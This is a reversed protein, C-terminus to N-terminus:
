SLIEKYYNELKEAIAQPGFKQFTIQAYKSRSFNLSRVWSVSESLEFESEFNIKRLIEESIKFEELSLLRANAIVPTGVSLSELITQGFTEEHSPVFLADMHRLFERIESSPLEGVFIIKQYEPFHTFFNHSNHDFRPGVIYLKEEPHNGDGEIWSILLEKLGKRADYVDGACVFAFNGGQKYDQLERENSTDLCNAIVQVKSNAPFSSLMYASPVIWGNIRDFIKQRMKQEYHEVVKFLVSAKENKQPRFHHHPSSLPWMSHLTWVIKKSKEIKVIHNIGVFGTNVWHLHVIDYDKFSVNSIPNFPLWMLSKYLGDAIELRRHVEYEYKRNIRAKFKRIKMRKKGLFTSQNLSERHVTHGGNRLAECQRLAALGAGGFDDALLFLIKM